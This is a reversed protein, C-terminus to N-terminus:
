QAPTPSVVAGGGNDGGNGGGSGSSNTVTWGDFTYGTRTVASPLTIAGDYLCSSGGGTVTGGNGVFTTTVTNAEWQATCTVNNAVKFTGTDGPQYNVTNGVLAQGTENLTHDCHWGTFHWGNFVCTNAAVNYTGDQAITQATPVTGSQNETGPKTGCDYTITYENASYIAYLTLDGDTTWPASMASGAAIVTSTSCADSQNQSWGCFTYGADETIGTTAQALTTYTADFTVGDTHTYDSGTGHLGKKYIADYTNPHCAAQLVLYNWGTDVGLDITWAGSMAQGAPLLQGISDYVTAGNRITSWGDFTYGTSVTLGANALSLPTYVADYTLSDNSNADQITRYLPVGNITDVQQPNVSQSFTGCTTTSEYYVQYKKPSWQAYMDVNGVVKYTESDGASYATGGSTNSDTLSTATGTGLNYNARWGAFTYGSQSYNTDAASGSNGIVTYGTDFTANTTKDSGSVAHTVSGNKATGPHYTVTYGNPTWKAYWTATAGATSIQRTSVCDIFTGNANIVKTGGGNVATYFGEFDYGALTPPTISTITEDDIECGGPIENGSGDLFGTCLGEIMRDGYVSRIPYLNTVSYEVATGASNYKSANLTIDGSAVPRWIATLVADNDVYRYSVPHQDNYYFVGGSATNDGGTTGDIATIDTSSTWGGFTYGTASYGNATLTTPVDYTFTQSTPSNGSVEQNCSLTGKNYTITYTNPTWKATFTSTGSYGELTPYQCTADALPSTGEVKGAATLDAFAPCAMCVVLGSTLFIKRM